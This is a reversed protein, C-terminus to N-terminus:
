EATTDSEGSFGLFEFVLMKVVIDEAMKSVSEALDKTNNSIQQGISQTTNKADNAASAGVQPSLSISVDATAPM